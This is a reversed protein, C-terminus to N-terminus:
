MSKRATLSGASKLNLLGTLPQAASPSPVHSAAAQPGLRVKRSIWNEASRVRNQFQRVEELSLSQTQAQASSFLLLFFLIVVRRVQRGGGLSGLLLIPCTRHRDSCTRCRRAFRQRYAPADCGSTPARAPFRSELSGRLPSHRKRIQQTTNRVCSFPGGDPLGLRPLFRGLLAYWCFMLLCDLLHV